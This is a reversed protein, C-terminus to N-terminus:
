KFIEWHLLWCTQSTTAMSKRVGLAIYTQTTRLGRSSETKTRVTTQAGCIAAVILTLNADM